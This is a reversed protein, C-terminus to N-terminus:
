ECLQLCKIPVYYKIYRNGQKDAYGGEDDPVMVTARKNIRYVIGELRHDDLRFCVRHGIRLGYKEQAIRQPTPLHHTSQTHGFLNRALTKFREKSCNSTNFMILEIVHCLEHEFVLQLAELASSTPFGAVGKDNEIEDYKFLFYTGIRIELVVDKPQLQTINKPGMTKGATKVLRNSLSFRIKGKYEKAFHRRFFIEDYLDFLMQLDMTSILDIKRNKVNPSGSILRHGVEKRRDLIEKDAYILTSLDFM